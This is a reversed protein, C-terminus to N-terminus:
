AISRARAKQRRDEVLAFLRRYAAESQAIQKGASELLGARTSEASAWADSVAQRLRAAFEPHAIDEVRCAPGFQGALGRFKDFYYRSKALTVAPIGMSLAFVAAHYSGSIVVRCHRLSDFLGARDRREVDAVDLGLRRITEADDTGAAQSVPLMVMEGGPAAGRIAAGIHVLDDDNVGSYSASRVSIGLAAGPRQPRENWALSIADDGTVVVREAPVGLEETLPGGAVGERLAILDIHPLVEAARKRLSADSMPGLGQGVMVTTAGAAQALALTELVVRAHGRFADNLSGAGTMLVLDAEEIAQRYAAAQNLGEKRYWLAAQAARDAVWPVRRLVPPVTSWAVSGAPHLPIAEPDSQRLSEPALCHVTIQADPWFARLRGIAVDFMAEDGINKWHYGSPEIFIRLPV